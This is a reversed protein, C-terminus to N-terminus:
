LWMNYVTFKDDTLLPFPRYLMFSVYIISVDSFGLLLFNQKLQNQTLNNL